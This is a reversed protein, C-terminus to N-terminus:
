SSMRRLNGEGQCLSGKRSCNKWGCPLDVRQVPHARLVMCRKGCDSATTSAPTTRRSIESLADSRKCGKAM